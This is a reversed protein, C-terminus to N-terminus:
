KVVLSCDEGAQHNNEKQDEAHDINRERDQMVNKM